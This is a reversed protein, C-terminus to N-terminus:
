HGDCKRTHSGCFRFGMDNFPVCYTIGTPLVMPQHNKLKFLDVIGILAGYFFISAKFFVTILLTFVVIADLRQIFELINVKGITSLLPFPSREVEEIGLVAIDLSITYSLALGSSIVASLWM